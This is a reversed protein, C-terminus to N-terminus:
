SYHKTGYTKFTSYAPIGDRKIRTLLLKNLGNRLRLLDIKCGCLAELEDTIYGMIFPDAENLEVFVDLDSDARQEGRAVSGFIGMSVIGYKKAHKKMFSRLITLYENTSKM